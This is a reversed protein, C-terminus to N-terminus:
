VARHTKIPYRAALRSAESALEMEHRQALSRMVKDGSGFPKAQSMENASATNVPLRGLDVYTVLELLAGLVVCEKASDSLGVETLSQSMATVVPKKAYVLNVTRGPVAEALLSVSKGTPFATTNASQDLSYRTIDVWELSPGVSQWKLDIIREADASVSYSTATASFVFTAAGVAYVRPWLRAVAAKVAEEVRFRSLSPNMTVKAEVAHTTATTGLQGRGWPALTALGTSQDVSDIYVTETGIEAYGRSLALGNAVTMSVDSANIGALLWTMEEPSSAGQAKHQVEDAIQTFTTV